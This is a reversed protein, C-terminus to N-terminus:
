IGGGGNKKQFGCTGQSTFNNPAEFISLIGVVYSTSNKEGLKHLSLRWPKRWM